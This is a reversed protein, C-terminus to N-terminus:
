ASTWRRCASVGPTLMEYRGFHIRATVYSEPKFAFGWALATDKDVGLRELSLGVHLFVEGDVHMHRGARCGHFFKNM